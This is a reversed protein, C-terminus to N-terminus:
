ARGGPTGGVFSVPGDGGKPGVVMVVHGSHVSRPGQHCAHCLTIYDSAKWSRLGTPDGGMGASRIHAAELRHHEYDATRCRRCVIDRLKAADKAARERTKALRSRARQM